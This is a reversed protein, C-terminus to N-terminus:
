GKGIKPSRKEPPSIAGKSVSKRSLIQETREKGKCALNEKGVGGGREPASREDKRMRDPGRLVWEYRLKGEV